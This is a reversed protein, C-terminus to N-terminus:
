NIRGHAEIGSYTSSKLSVLSEFYKVGSTFEVSDCVKLQRDSRHKKDYIVLNDHGNLYLIKGNESSGMARLPYQEVFSTDISIKTWSEQVGYDQMVWAVCCFYAWPDLVLLCLCGELEGVVPSLGWYNSELPVKNPPQLESFIESSIEFSVLSNYNGSRTGISHLVYNILVVSQEAYFEYHINTQIDKWM